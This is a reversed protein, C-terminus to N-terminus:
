AAFHKWFQFELSERLRTAEDRSLTPRCDNRWLRNTEWPYGEGRARQVAADRFLFDQPSVRVIHELSFYTDRRPEIRFAFSDRDPHSSGIMLPIPDTLSDLPKTALVIAPHGKRDKRSTWNTARAGLLDERVWWIDGFHPAYHDRFLDLTQEPTM